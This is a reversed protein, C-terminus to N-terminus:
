TAATPPYSDILFRACERGRLYELSFWLQEGGEELHTPPLPHGCHNSSFRRHEGLLQDTADPMLMDDVGRSDHDTTDLQPGALGYLRHVSNRGGNSMSLLSEVGSALSCM